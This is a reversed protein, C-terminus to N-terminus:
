TRKIMLSHVRGPAHVYFAIVEKFVGAFRFGIEKRLIIQGIIFGLLTSGVLSIASGVAGFFPVLMLNLIVNSVNAVLNVYFSLHPKGIVELASGVQINFPIFIASALLLQLIVAAEVYTPGATILLVFPAFLFFFIILPLILGLISAVSKEYLSRAGVIGNTVAQQAIQPYVVNSISLTPIEIFNMIRIAANYLAVTGHSISGLIIQDASKGVSTTIGTGLIFRGFKFLKKTLAWDLRFVTTVYPKTFWWGVILGALASMSQAAAFFVLPLGPVSYFIYVVIIFFLGYRTAASWFVGRFNHNAQELYNLQTFPVLILSTVCYWLILKSIEQTKWFLSLLPSLAILVFLFFLTSVLNLFLSSTILNEQNIEKDNFFKIFANQIFASRSMEVIAALMVYLVWIGFQDKSFYRVMFFYSGFGFVFVSMRQMMMYTGSRIWYHTAAM